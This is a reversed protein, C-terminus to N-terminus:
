PRSEWPDDPDLMVEWKGQRGEEQFRGSFIDPADVKLHGHGEGDMRRLKYIGPADMRGKWVRDDESLTLEGNQLTMQCDISFPQGGDLTWELEGWMAWNEHESM